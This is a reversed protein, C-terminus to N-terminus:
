LKKRFVKMKYIDFDKEDIIKIGLKECLIKLSLGCYFFTHFHTYSITYTDFADSTFILLGDDKVFQLIDNIQNFPDTFHEILNNAYVVDYKDNLDINNLIYNKNTNVFKDYGFVNYGKSRLYDVSKGIGCGYDLYKKNYDLIYNISSLANFVYHQTEGEQFYSYTDSYDKHIEDQTLSLFRLDGFILGCHKCEYRILKGAQFIDDVEKINYQDINENKECIYCSLNNIEPQKLKKWREIQREKSPIDM